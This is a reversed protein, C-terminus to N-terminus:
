LSVRQDWREVFLVRVQGDFGDLENLKEGRQVDLVELLVLPDEQDITIAHFKLLINIALSM